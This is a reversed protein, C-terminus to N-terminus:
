REFKWEKKNELDLVTICEEEYFIRFGKDICYNEVLSSIEGDSMTAIDGLEGLKNEVAFRRVAKTQGVYMIKGDLERRFM